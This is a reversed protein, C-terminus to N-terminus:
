GRASSDFLWSSITGEGGALGISEHRTKKRWWHAMVGATTAVVAGALWPWAGDSSLLDGVTDGMADMQNLCHELARDLAMFDMPLIDALIEESTHSTALIPNEGAAPLTACAPDSSGGQGRRDSSGPLRVEQSNGAAPASGPAPTAGPATSPM